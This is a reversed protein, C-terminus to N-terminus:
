LPVRLSTRCPASPTTNTASERGSVASNFRWDKTLRSAFRSSGPTRSSEKGRTKWHFLRSRGIASGIVWIRDSNFGRPTGSNSVQAVLPRPTKAARFAIM